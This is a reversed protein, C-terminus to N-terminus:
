RRTMGKTGDLFSSAGRQLAVRKEAAIKEEEAQIARKRSEWRSKNRKKVTEQVALFALTLTETFPKDQIANKNAEEDLSFACPTNFLPRFEGEMAIGGCQRCKHQRSRSNEFYPKISFSKCNTCSLICPWKDKDSDSDTKLNAVFNSVLEGSVWHDNHWSYERVIFIVLLEDSDGPARSEQREVVEVKWGETPYSPGTEDLDVLEQWLASIRERKRAGYTLVGPKDYTFIYPYFKRAAIETPSLGAIGGCCNYCRGQKSLWGVERQCNECPFTRFGQAEFSAERKYHAILWDLKAKMMLSQYLGRRFSPLLEPRDEFMDEIEDRTKDLSRKYDRYTDKDLKIDKSLSDFVENLEDALLKDKANQTKAAALHREYVERLMRRELDPDLAFEKSLSTRLANQEAQLAAHQSHSMEPKKLPASDEAEHPQALLDLLAPLEMTGKSEGRGM